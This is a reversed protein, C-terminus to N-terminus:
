KFLYNISKNLKHFSITVLVAPDEKTEIIRFKIYMDVFVNSGQVEYVKAKPAFVYLLVNKEKLHPTAYCFDEIKIDMLIQKIKKSSLNYAEIFEQNELRNENLEITWRDFRICTKILNFTKLFSEKTYNVIIKENNDQVYYHYM